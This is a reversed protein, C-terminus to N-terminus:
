SRPGAAADAVRCPVEGDAVRLRFGAGPEFQEASRMVRGDAGIPVAFGRALTALPSLAQLHAAAGRLREGRVQVSRVASAGLRTRADELDERATGVRERTAEFLCRGLEAVRRRLSVADPVAAEAAVSPTPARLDAVLDAITFDTEHGVASIVPIPCAAIARAVREENFAWLDEVSGGGRGVILVDVGGCRGFREIAMAVEEAAGDGQVRCGALVIRTWPSRRRIVSVIDRLAAGDASTVVGVCAPMPPLPRKREPATLGEGDLKARLRDFALKWLGDGMGELVSVGLQFEGRAEYLTLRGLARVQMGEEPATPLRRAEDRWMVCRLQADEDRLSFYCHGSRARTFNTVEGVVWLPPMAGEILERAAANVHSVSWETRSDGLDVALETGVAVSRALMENFALSGPPPGGDAAASRRRSGGRRAPAVRPAPTPQESERRAAEAAAFLDWTV